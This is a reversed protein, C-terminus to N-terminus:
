KEALIDDSLDLDAPSVPVPVVPAPLPLPAQVPLATAPPLAHVGGHMLDPDAAAGRQTGSHTQHRVQRGRSVPGYGGGEWVATPGYEAAGQVTPQADVFYSHGGAPTTQLNPRLGSGHAVLLQVHAGEGPGFPARKAIEDVARGVDACIELSFRVNDIQFFSSEGKHRERHAGYELNAQPVTTAPNAVGGHAQDMHQEDAEAKNAYGTTDGANQFKSPMTVLAGAYFAPASNGIEGRDADRWVITGPVILLKPFGSSIASLRDLIADREGVTYPDPAKKFYWEPGLFVGLVNHGPASAQVRRQEAQQLRPLLMEIRVDGPPITKEKVDRQQALTKRTREEERRFQKGSFAGYDDLAPAFLEASTDTYTEGTTRSRVRALLRAVAANGAARQLSM